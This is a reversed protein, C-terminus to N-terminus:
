GGACGKCIPTLAANRTRHGLRYQRFTQAEWVERLTNKNIDGVIVGEPIGTQRQSNECIPVRGNWHVIMVRSPLSCRPILGVAQFHPFYDMQAQSYDLIYQAMACDVRKRWFALVDRQHKRQSPRMMVRVNVLTPARIKRKMKMILDLNAVLTEFKGGIRMSEYGHKEHSDASIELLRVPATLIAEISQKTLRQGNTVLQLYPCSSGLARVMRSFQPHLTSEGNGVLRVRPVRLDLLQTVLKEFTQDSMFGRPRIGLPSTCYPCQLNCYNTLEITVQTPRPSEPLLWTLHSRLMTSVPIRGLASWGIKRYYDIRDFLRGVRRTNDYVPLGDRTGVFISFPNV